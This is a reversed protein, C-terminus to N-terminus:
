ELKVPFDRVSKSATPSYGCYSKSSMSRYQSSLPRSSPLHHANEVSFDENGISSDENGVSSHQNEISSHQIIIFIPVRATSALVAHTAQASPNAPVPPSHTIQSSPPWCDDGSLLDHTHLGPVYSLQHEILAARSAIPDPAAHLAVCSLGVGRWTKTHVIPLVQVAPVSKRPSSM